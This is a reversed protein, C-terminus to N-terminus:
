QEDTRGTGFRSVYPQSVTSSSGNLPKDGFQSDLISPVKGLGTFLAQLGSATQGRNLAGQLMSAQMLNGFMSATNANLGAAQALYNRAALRANLRSSEYSKAFAQALSEDRREPNLIGMGTRATDRRNRIAIQRIAEALDAKSATEGEAVLQKYLLDDPNV